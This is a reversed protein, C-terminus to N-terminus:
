ETGEMLPFRAASQQPGEGARGLGNMCGVFGAAAPAARTRSEWRCCHVM